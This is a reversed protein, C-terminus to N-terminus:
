PEIKGAKKDLTSQVEKTLATLKDIYKRDLAKNESIEELRRIIFQLSSNLVVLLRYISETERSNFKLAAM